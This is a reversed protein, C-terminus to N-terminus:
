EHPQMWGAEIESSGRGYPFSKGLFDAMQQCWPLYGEMETWWDQSGWNTVGHEWEGGIEIYDSCSASGAFAWVVHVRLEFGVEPGAGYIKQVFAKLGTLGPPLHKSGADPPLDKAFYLGAVKHKEAMDGGAQKRSKGGGDWDSYHDSEYEVEGIQGRVSEIAQVMDSACVAVIDGLMAERLAMEDEATYEVPHPDSTCDVSHIIQYAIKM